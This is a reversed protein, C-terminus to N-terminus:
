ALLSRTAVFRRGLDGAAEGAPEERRAAKLFWSAATLIAVGVAMIALRHWLDEMRTVTYWLAFPPFLFGLGYAWDETWAIYLMTAYGYGFVALGLAALTWGVIMAGKPVVLAVLVLAISAGGIGVLVRKALGRLAARQKRTLTKRAVPEPPPAESRGVRSPHQRAKTFTSEVVAIPEPAPPAVPVPDALGYGSDGPPEGPRPVIMEHGCGRCKGRRGALAEPVSLSQGCDECAFTIPM